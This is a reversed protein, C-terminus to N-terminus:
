LRAPHETRGAVLRTMAAFWPLAFGEPRLGEGLLFVASGLTLFAAARSGVGAAQCALFVLGLTLADM